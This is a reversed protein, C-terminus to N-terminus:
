KCLCLLNLFLQISEHLFIHRSYILRYNHSRHTFHMVCSREPRLRGDFIYLHHGLFSSPLRFRLFLDLKLHKLLLGGILYALSDEFAVNILASTRKGCLKRKFAVHPRYVVM